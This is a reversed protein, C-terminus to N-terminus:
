FRGADGKPLLHSAINPGLDLALLQIIKLSGARGLHVPADSYSGNSLSVALTQFIYKEHPHTLRSQWNVDTCTKLSGLNWCQNTHEIGSSVFGDSVVIYKPDPM